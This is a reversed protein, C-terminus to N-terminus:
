MDHQCHCRYITLYAIYSFLISIVLNTFIIMVDFYANGYRPREFATRITFALRIHFGLEDHSGLDHNRGEGFPRMLQSQHNRLTKM